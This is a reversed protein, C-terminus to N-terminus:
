DTYEYYIRGDSDFGTARYPRGHQVQYIIFMLLLFVCVVSVVAECFANWDAKRRM